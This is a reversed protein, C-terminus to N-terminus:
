YLSALVILIIDCFKVNWLTEILVISGDQLIEAYVKKVNWLTEILVCVVRASVSHISRDKCEMINRNISVLPLYLLLLLM